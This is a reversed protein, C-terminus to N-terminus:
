IKWKMESSLIIKTEFFDNQGWNSLQHSIRFKTGKKVHPPSPTLNAIKLTGYKSKKIQSCM